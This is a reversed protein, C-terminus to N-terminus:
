IRRADDSVLSGIQLAFIFAAGPWRKGFLIGNLKAEDVKLSENRPSTLLGRTVAGALFTAILALVIEM